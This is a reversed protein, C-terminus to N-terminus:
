PFFHLCQHLSPVQPCLPSLTPRISFAAHVYICYWTYFLNSTLIQERVHPALGLARHHGPPPPICRPSPPKLPLPYTYFASELQQIASVLM